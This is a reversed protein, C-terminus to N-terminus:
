EKIWEGSDNEVEDWFEKITLKKPPLVYIPKPKPKTKKKNKQKDMAIEMSSQVTHSSLGM